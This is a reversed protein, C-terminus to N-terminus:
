TLRNGWKLHAGAIQVRMFAKSGARRKALVDRCHHQLDASPDGYLAAALRCFNGLKTTVPQIDHTECLYLAAWAALQKDEASPKPKGLKSKEWSECIAVLVKLHRLLHEHNFVEKDVGLEPVSIQFLPLPRFDFNTATETAMAIVKRLAAGYQEAFLKQGGCERSRARKWEERQKSMLDVIADVDGRPASGKGIIKVAEQVRRELPLLRTSKAARRAGV